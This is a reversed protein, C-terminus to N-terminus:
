PKEGHQNAAASAQPPSQAPPSGGAKSKAIATSLNSITIQDAQRQALRTLINGGGLGVVIAGLLQALELPPLTQPSQNVVYKALPGYMGGVVVAAIAGVIVNGIWGPRWTRNEKDFHPLAFEGTIACNAIGGVAGLGAIMWILNWITM